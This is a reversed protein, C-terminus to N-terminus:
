LGQGPLRAGLHPEAHAVEVSRELVRVLRRCAERERAPGRDPGESEHRPAVLLRRAGRDGASEPAAHAVGHELLLELRRAVREPTIPLFTEWRWPLSKRRPFPGTKASMRRASSILRAGAFVCDARRSHM